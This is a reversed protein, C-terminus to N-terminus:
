TSMGKVEPLAYEEFKRDRGKGEWKIYATGMSYKRDAKISMQITYEGKSVKFCSFHGDQTTVKTCLGNATILPM